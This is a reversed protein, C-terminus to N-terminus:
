KDEQGDSKQEAEIRAIAAQAEERVYAEPHLSLKRLAPIASKAKPGLNGLAEMVSLAEEPQRDLLAILEDLAGMEALFAAALGEPDGKHFARLRRSSWSPM